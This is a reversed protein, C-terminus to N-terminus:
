AIIYVKSVNNLLERRDYVEFEVQKLSVRKKLFGKSIVDYVMEAPIRANPHSKLSIQINSEMYLFALESFLKRNNGRDLDFLITGSIGQNKLYDSFTECNGDTMLSLKAYKNAIDIISELDIFHELSDEFLNMDEM